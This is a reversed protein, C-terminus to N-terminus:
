SKKEMALFIWRLAELAPQDTRHFLLQWGTNRALDRLAQKRAHMRALFRDRLAGAQQTEFSLGGGISEFIVRRSYPFEEEVPDLVQVLIGNVRQSASNSLASIISPWDGLFDSFFVVHSGPQLDRKAPAAYEEDRDVSALSMAMKEVQSIGIKPPDPDGLLGVREGSKVMLLAAALGLVEARHAKTESSKESVFNMSAGQDVWISLSQAIQLEMQRVFRDDGRASRRWDIDRLGDTQEAMRYQWFEAGLGPRRRGHPGLTALTALRDAAAMLSPFGAALADADARLRLGQSAIPNM